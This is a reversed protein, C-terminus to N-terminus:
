PCASAAGSSWAPMTPASPIWTPRSRTRSQASAVRNSQDTVISHAIASVLVTDDTGDLEGRRTLAQRFDVSAFRRALRVAWGVANIVIQHRNHVPSMSEVTEVPGGFWLESTEYTRGISVDLVWGPRIYPTRRPTTDDILARDDDSITIEAAGADTSAGARVDWSMLPLDTHRYRVAGTADRLMCYASVGSPDYGPPIASM